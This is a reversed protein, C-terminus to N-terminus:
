QNALQLPDLCAPLSSNIHARVLGEFCKMNISILAVPRYDNLCMAHAKKPVPITTTKKFCTLVEAQLLSLNLTDTFVEGLQDM